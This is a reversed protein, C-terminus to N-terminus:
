AATTGARAALREDFQRVHRGALWLFGVGQLRPGLTRIPRPTVAFVRHVRRQFREFWADDEATWPQGLQERIAPPLSGLTVRRQLWIV